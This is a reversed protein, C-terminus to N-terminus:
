YSTIRYDIKIALWIDKFYISVLWLLDVHETRWLERSIHFPRYNGTCNSHESVLESNVYIDWKVTMKRTWGSIIQAKSQRERISIMTYIMYNIRPQLIHSKNPEYGSIKARALARALIDPERWFLLWIRWGRM